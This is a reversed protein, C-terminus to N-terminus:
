IRINNALLWTSTHRYKHGNQVLYDVIVIAFVIIPFLLHETSTIIVSGKERQTQKLTLLGASKTKQKKNWNLESNLEREILNETQELALGVKGKNNDVLSM